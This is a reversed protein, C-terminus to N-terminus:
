LRKQENSGSRSRSRILIVDDDHDNVQRTRRQSVFRDPSRDLPSSSIDSISDLSRRRESSNHGHKPPDVDFPSKNLNNRVGNKDLEFFDFTENNTQLCHLYFLICSYCFYRFVSVKQWLSKLKKVILLMHFHQVMKRVSTSIM